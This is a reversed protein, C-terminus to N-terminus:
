LFVLGVLVKGYFGSLDIKANTNSNNSAELELSQYGAEAGVMFRSFKVGAELGAGYSLQDGKINNSSSSGGGTFKLDAWPYGITVIPGVYVLTDIIRWDVLLSLNNVDLDWETNNASQKQNAWEYRAGVGIPVAPLDFFVDGNFFEIEDSNLGGNSVTNVKNEFADPDAATLGAGARLELMGAQAAAATLGFATLMMMLKTSKRM